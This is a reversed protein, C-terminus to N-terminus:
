PCRGATPAPTRGPRRRRPPRLSSSRRARFRRVARLRARVAQGAVVRPGPWLGRGGRVAAGSADRGRDAPVQEADAPCCSRPGPGAPRVARRRWGTGDSLLLRGGLEGEVLTRVIQLGLGPTATSTSARPCGGGPRGRGCLRLEGEGPASADGGGRRRARRPRAGRREAGARGPGPGAADGGRARAARLQRGAPGAGGGGRRARRGHRGGPRRGRRLGRRGRGGPGPDRPRGRDLRGAAGGRGAGRARDADDDGLRRAQLRLLAAVTQLNNKVRHHIERITADKSVLERERRRVETVDRCLVLAATRVGDPVLPIVRLRLATGSAEVETERAAWGSVVMSLAEDVPPALSGAPGGAALRATVDGLHAGALDGALGLRRYASLANPSAFTVVGHEDLRILGDGVRPAAGGPRRSDAVPFRGQAVMRALDDATRLYTLELRSPTRAAALNTHRSVVRSWGAPAARGPDDGGAGAGRGALGPRARPLDAARRPGPGAAPAPRAAGRHRRRRRPPRDPRDDPADPRGRRLRRRSALPLWLVLDAFSLDALLQWDAVLLHLWAVDEVSLDTRRAAVDQLSAM